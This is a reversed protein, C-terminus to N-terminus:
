PISLRSSFSGRILRQKVRELFLFFHQSNPWMPVNKELWFFFFRVKTEFIEHGHVDLTTWSWITPKYSVVTTSINNKNTTHTPRRHTHTNQAKYLPEFTYLPAHQSSWRNEPVPITLPFALFVVVGVHRARVKQRDGDVIQGGNHEECNQKGTIPSDDCEVICDTGPCRQRQQSKLVTKPGTPFLPFDTFWDSPCVTRMM